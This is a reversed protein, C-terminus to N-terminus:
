DRDHDHRDHHKAAGAGVAAGAVGAALPSCGVQSVVAAGLLVLLVCRKLMTVEQSDETGSARQGKFRSRALEM